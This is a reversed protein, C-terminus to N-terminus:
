DGWVRQYKQVMWLINFAKKYEEKQIHKEMEDIYLLLDMNEDKVLEKIQTINLLADVRKLKKLNNTLEEFLYKLSNNKYSLNWLQHYQLEKLEKSLLKTQKNDKCLKIKEQIFYIKESTELIDEVLNFVTM